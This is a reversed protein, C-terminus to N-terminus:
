RRQLLSRRSSPSQRLDRLRRPRMPTERSLGHQTPLLRRRRTFGKSRMRGLHRVFSMDTGYVLWSPCLPPSSTHRLHHGFTTKDHTQIYKHFHKSESCELVQERESANWLAPSTQQTPPGHYLGDTDLFNNVSRYRNDLENRDETPLSMTPLLHRKDTGYVDKKATKKTKHSVPKADRTAHHLIRVSTRKPSPPSSRSSAAM